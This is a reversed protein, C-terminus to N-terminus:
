VRRRGTSCAACLLAAILASSPEPVALLFSLDLNSLSGSYNLKWEDFDEFDVFGNGTLDGLSRDGVQTRFNAAIAALDNETDVVDDCNVDGLMCPNIETALFSVGVDRHASSAGGGETYYRGDAYFDTADANNAFWLVGPNGDSSLAFPTSIEIGYGETGMFRAPLEFVEGLDLEFSLTENSGPLTDQFLIEAVPLGVPAWESALVDAVEYIRLGLGTDNASGQSNGGTVDFSIIIEGVNITSPNKFTQRLMRDETIGRNNATTVPPNEYPDVTYIDPMDGFRPTIIGDYKDGVVTVAQAPAAVFAFAVLLAATAVTRRSAALGCVALLAILATTPEPVIIFALDLGALSGGGGLLATKFERFDTFDVVGDGNLDGDSRFSVQQRYNARIPTLDDGDVVGNGTTDGPVIIGTLADALTTGVRLEDIAMQAYLGDGNTGGTFIRFGDFQYDDVGTNSVDPTGLPTAPNLSPNFWVNLTDDMVGDDGGVVQVEILAFVLESQDITSYVSTSPIDIGSYIGWEMVDSRTSKGVSFQETSNNIRAQLIAARTYNDAPTAHPLQRQGLFSIWYTGATLGLDSVMNRVPTASGAAGGILVHNGSTLLNNTGDNYALSGAVVVADGGGTWGGDWGFGGDQGVLNGVAYDFGEYALLEANSTRAFGCIVALAALTKIVQLHRM